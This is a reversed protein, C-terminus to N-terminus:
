LPPVEVVAPKRKTELQFWWIPVAYVFDLHLLVNPNILIGQGWHGHSVKGMQHHVDCNQTTERTIVGHPHTEKTLPGGNPKGKFGVM